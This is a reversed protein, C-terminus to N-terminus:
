RPTAVCRFGIGHSHSQADQVFRLAPDAFEPRFSNFAGGRVVRRDGSADGKPDESGDYPSFADATWEFVNGAMDALGAASNGAPFSGVPSTGVFGDDEDHLAETPPLGVRERWAVCESGCGNMTESSPAEDGWPYDRGDTGRAALEWQAETPLGKGQWECYRQAQAWTVCNIPHEQRDDHGENCLEGHRERAREWAAEDQGGRPWWSDRYARKCEGIDSCEHYSSVTVETQDICFAEIEVRHAPRALALLPNSDDTGMFFASGEVRVMGDPCRGSASGVSPDPATVPVPVAVAEEDDVREAAPEVPEAMAVGSRAPAEPADSVLRSGLVVGLAVAVSVASLSAVVRPALWRRHSGAPIHVPVADAAPWDHVSAPVIAPASALVDLGRSEPEADALRRPGGTGSVDTLVKVVHALLRPLAPPDFPVRLAPLGAAAPFPVALSRDVLLVVPVVPTGDSGVVTEVIRRVTAIAEGRAELVLADYSTLDFLSLRNAEGVSQFAEVEFGHQSLAVTSSAVREADLDLYLVVPAPAGSRQTSRGEALNGM